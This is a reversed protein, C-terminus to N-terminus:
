QLPLVLSVTTGDGDNRIGLEGRYAAMLQRCAPLSEDPARLGRITEQHLGSFPEFATELMAPPIVGGEDRLTFHFDDGQRETQLYLARTPTPGGTAHRLLNQVTTAFDAYVGFILPTEARLDQALSVDSQIHGECQLLEIEQALLDHLDIWEPIGPAEKDVRRLLSKMLGDIKAVAERIQALALPAREDWVAGGGETSPLMLTDLSQSQQNLVSVPEQLRHAMKLFLDELLVQRDRQGLAVKANQLDQYATEMREYSEALARSSENLDFILEANELSAQAMRAHLAIMELDLPDFTGTPRVFAWFGWIGGDGLRNPLVLLGADMGHQWLGCQLGEDWIRSAKLADGALLGKTDLNRLRQVLPHDTPLTPLEQARAGDWSLGTFYGGSRHIRYAGIPRAHAETSARELVKQLLDNPDHIVFIEQNLALLRSLSQNRNELAEQAATLKRNAMQAEKLQVELHELVQVSFQRLAAGEKAQEIKEKAGELYSEVQKVFTFPDIPKPIFGDCGAVLATDRDSKQTKATLAVIVMGNLEPTNRFKTALEFGSLGPLNIDLLLLEPRHELAMDYGKLGEEAWFMEYGAQGLLRQVLRWNVPNDEICLIKKRPSFTM